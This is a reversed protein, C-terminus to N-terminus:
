LACGARARRSAILVGGPRLHEGQPLVVEETVVDRLTAEDKRDADVEPFDVAEGEVAEGEVAATEAEKVVEDDPAADNADLALVTDLPDKQEFVAANENWDGDAFAVDDQIDEHEEALTWGEEENTSAELRNEGHGDGRVLEGEVENKANLTRREDARRREDQDEM